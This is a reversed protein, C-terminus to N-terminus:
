KEWVRMKHYKIGSRFLELLLEGEVMVCVVLMETEGVVNVVEATRCVCM